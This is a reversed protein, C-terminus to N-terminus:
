GIQTKEIIEIVDKKPKFNWNTKKGKAGSLHMYLTATEIILKPYHILRAFKKPSIKGYLEKKVFYIVRIALELL